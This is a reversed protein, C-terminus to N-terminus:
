YNYTDIYTSSRSRLNLRVNKLMETAYVNITLDDNSWTQDNM